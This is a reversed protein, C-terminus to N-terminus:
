DRSLAIKVGLAILVVGMTRDVWHQVKRFRQQIIPRTLVFTVLSFWLVATGSMILAYTLQVIAPTGPRMVVTFISLFFLTAKPNLLNTLLGSRFAQGRSMMSSISQEVAVDTAKVPKARLAKIGLYILYGAGAFKLVSLLLISQAIVYSIGIISYSMHILCGLAIGLTTYIGARKGKTLSNKVVVAFDPGPSILGLVHIGFITLFDVLYIDM